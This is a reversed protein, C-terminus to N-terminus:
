SGEGNKSDGTVGKGLGVTRGAPAVGFAFRPRLAWEKWAFGRARRPTKAAPGPVPTGRRASGDPLAAEAPAAAVPKGSTQRVLRIVVGDTQALTEVQDVSAGVRARASPRRTWIEETDRLLDLPVRWSVDVTLTNERAFFAVTLPEEDGLSSHAALGCVDDLAVILRAQDDEDMGCPPALTAVLLRLRARTARNRRLYVTVAHGPEGVLGDTAAALSPYHWLDGRLGAARLVQGHEEGCGVLRLEKDLRQAERAVRVIAQAGAGVAEELRRVDIVVVAAAADVLRIGGELITALAAEDATGVLTAVVVGPGHGIGWSLRSAGLRIWEEVM